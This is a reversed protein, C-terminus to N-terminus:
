FMKLDNQWCIEKLESDVTKIFNIFIEYSLIRNWNCDTKRFRLHSFELSDLRYITGVIKLRSNGHGMHSLIPCPMRSEWGHLESECPHCRVSCYRPLHKTKPLQRPHGTFAVGVCPLWTGELACPVARVAADELRCM